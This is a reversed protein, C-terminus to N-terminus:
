CVRYSCLLIIDEVSFRLSKKFQLDQLIYLVYSIKFPSM